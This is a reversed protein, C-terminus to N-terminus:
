ASDQRARRRILFYSVAGAFATVLAVGVTVAVPTVRDTSGDLGAKAAHSPGAVASHRPAPETDRRPVAKTGPHSDKNTGPRAVVEFHGGTVTRGGCTASVTHTGPRVAAFVEPRAVSSGENPVGRLQTRPFANSEVIADYARGTGRCATGDVTVTLSGGQEVTGPRVVINSPGARGPDAVASPAPLALAAAALAVAAVARTVPM